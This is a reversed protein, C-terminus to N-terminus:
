AGFIQRRKKQTGPLVRGANNNISLAPKVEVVFSYPRRAQGTGVISIAIFHSCLGIRKIKMTKEERQKNHCWRAGMIQM